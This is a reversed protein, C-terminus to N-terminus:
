SQTRDASAGILWGSSLSPEAKKWSCSSIRLANSVVIM